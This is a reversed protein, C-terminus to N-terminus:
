EKGKLVVTFKAGEQCNQVSLKGKCHKEVITKSMYLGLGTGNENKTTFYPEFIKEKIEESVGKANDSIEFVVTNNEDIEYGKIKIWPNQIKKEVLADQANKILNLFVQVLENPFTFLKKSFAYEEKLEINNAKLSHETMLLAKKIIELPNTNELEKDEKFFNRFDNVTASLFQAHTGIDLLPKEIDDVSLQNLSKKIQLDAAIASIASLPQRWQHAINGIMEGMAVFRAKNILLKEQQKISTIDIGIIILEKKDNFRSGILLYDFYGNKTIIQTEMTVFDNELDFIDNILKSFEKNTQTFGVKKGIIDEKKLGVVETLKKNVNIYTMDSSIQSVTVPMADILIDFKDKESKM